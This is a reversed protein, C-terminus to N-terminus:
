IREIKEIFDKKYDEIRNRLLEVVDQINGSTTKERVSFYFKIKPETGSPRMSIKTGDETFFQLVDSAPLGTIKEETAAAIDYKKLNKIDNVSIVKKGCFEVPPKERYLSMIQRIKEIGEMGKITMSYLDELYVGYKRYIEMLFDFPTKGSDALWQTMEAFFYCSSVSDKDRVFDVPLYGYSEEGGFIYKVGTTEYERIKAAIWKFGTLVNDVRCGFSKGIEDQLDTTVITKVVATKESLTGVTSYNSLMYYELMTGIQNGNLLLFGGSGDKIGIGVRDADPDTAIILDAGKELGLKAVLEMASREEPNPSKLTSFKGDPVSQKKESYIEPFGLTKFLQPIIKYGTGHLPTYAIKIKSSAYHQLRSSALKKTYSSLIDDGIKVILGSTLGDRFAIKKIKSVDDIRFVEDIIEKDHPPVVQGGDDWYVKYGNYEPPNHSATVVVGSCAGLERVAFSCLPTPMIDDFYFVRIGNGALVAATEEAFVDSMNRSDRAIVVGRSAGNKSIIYNALGQTAMGVTYINMRNLGAGIVGRLGGTGFELRTYFRDFLEKENKESELARIESVTALDFPPKKWTEIKIKISEDM